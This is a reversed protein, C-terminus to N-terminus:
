EGKERKRQEGKGEREMGESEERKRKNEACIFMSEAGPETGPMSFESSFDLGKWWLAGLAPLTLPSDTLLVKYYSGWLPPGGMQGATPHFLSFSLILWTQFFFSCQWPSLPSDWTRLSTKMHSRAEKLTLRTTHTVLWTFSVNVLLCVLWSLIWFAIKYAPVEGDPTQTRSSGPKQWIIKNRVWLHPGWGSAEWFVGPNLYSVVRSRSSYTCFVLKGLVECEKM